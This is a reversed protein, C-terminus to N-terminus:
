LMSMQIIGHNTEWVMLFYGNTGGVALNMIEGSAPWSGYQNTTPLMQIAPWIGDSKPLKAKVEVRGYLVRSYSYQSVTHSQDKSMQLFITCYSCYTLPSSGWLNLTCGNRLNGEGINGALYTPKLYLVGDKVYNNSWNNDYYQFEWNGGGGAM